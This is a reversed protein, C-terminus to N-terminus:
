TCVVEYELHSSSSGSNNQESHASAGTRDREEEARLSSPLPRADRAGSSEGSQGDQHRLVSPRQGAFWFHLRVGPFRDHRTRHIFDQPGPPPLALRRDKRGAAAAWRHDRKDHHAAQARRGRPHRNQPGLIVRNFNVDFETSPFLYRCHRRACEIAVRRGLRSYESSSRRSCWAMASSGDPIM